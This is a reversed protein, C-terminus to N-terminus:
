YLSSPTYDRNLELNGSLFSIAMPQLGLSNKPQLHGSAQHYVTTALGLTYSRWRRLLPTYPLVTCGDLMYYIKPPLLPNRNESAALIDLRTRNGATEVM